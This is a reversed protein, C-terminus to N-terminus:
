VARGRYDVEPGYTAKFYNVRSLSVGIRELYLYQVNKNLSQDRPLLLHTPMESCVRPRSVCLDPNVAPVRKFSFDNEKKISPNNKCIWNIKVDLCRAHVVCWPYAGYELNNYYVHKYM